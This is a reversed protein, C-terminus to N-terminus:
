FSKMADILQENDVHTYIQTTSLKSHGLLKSVVLIDRTEQYVRSAFSHRLTHPTIGESWGLKRRAYRMTSQVHQASVKGTKETGFFLLSGEKSEVYSQLIPVLPAAMPVKRHKGGKANRVYIWGSNEGSPFVVDASTLNMAESIRLGAYFITWMMVKILAHDVADVWLRVEELKLYTRESQPVKIEPVNEALEVDVWKQKAAFKLFGKITAAIRRRSAPKYNKKAKLHWLFETYSKERLDELAVPGNFEEEVYKCWFGLDEGYGKITKPSRELTFLHKRYAEIATTLLM